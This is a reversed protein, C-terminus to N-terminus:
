ADDGMLFVSRAAEILASIPQARPDLVNLEAVADFSELYSAAFASRLAQLRAISAALQDDEDPREGVPRLFASGLTRPSEAGIELLAYSARVRSAFAAQRGRPPASLAAAILGAVADACLGREGGLNELLLDADICAYQYFLGAGFEGLGVYAAGPAGLDDVATFYDDEIVARHTTFAHAIQVAAEVNHTPQDALLRGFMAIDAARPQDRLVLATKDDLTASGLLRDALSRLRALEDPGLHVLQETQAQGRRVKGLRDHDIVREAREVATAADLGRATLEAVLGAAFQTSRTGVADGVAEAFIRSTRIARKLSQSSLRLREAGGYVMTKPRGTDDRNANAAPYATLAHLQLFRTM